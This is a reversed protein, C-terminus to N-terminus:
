TTPFRYEICIVVILIFLIVNLQLLNTVKDKIFHYVPTIFIIFYNFHQKIELSFVSVHLLALFLNKILYRETKLPSTLWILVVM